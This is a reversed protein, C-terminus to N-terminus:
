LPNSNIMGIMHEFTIKQEIRPANLKENIVTNKIKITQIKSM